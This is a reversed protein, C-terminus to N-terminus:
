LLCASQISASQGRGQELQFRILTHPPHYDSSIICRAAPRGVVISPADSSQGCQWWVRLLWHTRSISFSVSTSFNLVWNPWSQGCEKNNQRKKMSLNSAVHPWQRSYPNHKYWQWTLCRFLKFKTYELQVDHLSERYWVGDRTSNITQM